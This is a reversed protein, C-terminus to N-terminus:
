DWTYGFFFVGIQILMGLADDLSVFPSCHVVHLKPQHIYRKIRSTQTLSEGALPLELWFCFNGRPMNRWTVSTLCGKMFVVPQTSSTALSKILSDSFAEYGVVAIAQLPCISIIWLPPPVQSSWLLRSARRVNGM